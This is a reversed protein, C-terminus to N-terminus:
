TPSGRAKPERNLKSDPKGNAHVPRITIVCFYGIRQVSRKGEKRKANYISM